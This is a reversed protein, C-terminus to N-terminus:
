KSKSKPKPEPCPCEFQEIDEWQEKVKKGPQKKAGNTKKYDMEWLYRHVFLTMLSQKKQRANTSVLL